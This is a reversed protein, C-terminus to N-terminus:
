NSKIKTYIIKRNELFKEISKEFGDKLDNFHNEIEDITMTGVPVKFVYQLLLIHNSTPMELTVLSNHIVKDCETLCDALDNVLEDQGEQNNLDLLPVEYGVVISKLNYKM